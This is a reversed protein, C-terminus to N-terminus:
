AASVVRWRGSERALFCFGGACVGNCCHSLRAV